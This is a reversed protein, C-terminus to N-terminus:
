SGARADHGKERKKFQGRHIGLDGGRSVQNHSDEKVTHM